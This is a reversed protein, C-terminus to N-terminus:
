DDYYRKKLARYKRLYSLAELERSVYEGRAGSGPGVQEQHVSSVSSSQLLPRRQPGEQGPPPAAPGGPPPPGDIRSFMQGGSIIESVKKYLRVVKTRLPNVMMGTTAGSSPDSTTAISHSTM